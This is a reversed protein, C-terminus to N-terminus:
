KTLLHHENSLLSTNHEEKNQPGKLRSCCSNMRINGPNIQPGSTDAPHHVAILLHMILVCGSVVLCM